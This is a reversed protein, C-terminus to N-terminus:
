EHKEKPPPKLSVNEKTTASGHPKTLPITAQTTPQINQTTEICNEQRSKGLLYQTYGGVVGGFLGALASITAAVIVVRKNLKHQEVMVAKNLEHQEKMLRRQWEKETLIGEASLPHNREGFQALDRDSKVKLEETIDAM